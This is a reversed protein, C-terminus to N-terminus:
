VKFKDIQSNLQNTLQLLHSSASSMEKASISNSTSFDNIKSVEDRITTIHKGTLIFNNTTEENAKVAQLMVKSVDTISMEISQSITALQEIETSNHKMQSSAEMISQVIVNITASIEALSKQTREALQRVEDAVVAFGRGHEGARAAEIAANLALLNTQDAIDSIVNLINKVQEAEHSLTEIKQTLEIEVESTEQVKHTLSIIEDRALDLRQNAHIVDEKTQKANEVYMVIEDQIHLTNTATDNVIAGSKGINTGVIDASRTLEESIALNEMSTANITELVKSVEQTVINVSNAIDSIENKGELVLEESFNLQELKKLHSHIVKIGSIITSIGFFSVLVITFLTFSSILNKEQINNVTVSIGEAKSENEARHEVVWKDLKMSLRESFPDLEEMLKNGEQPGSKIYTHAMKLGVQYYAKFDKQFAELALVMEPENYKKHENIIHELLTNAHNYYKQAESFGDDFGEQARTASIDTLWGQVQLVDIKLDMFNFAHPLVETRKENILDKVHSINSYTLLTSISLIVLVIIASGWLVQSIKFNKLM